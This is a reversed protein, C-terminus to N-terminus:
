RGGRFKINSWLNLGLLVGASMPRKINVSCIIPTGLNSGPNWNNIYSVQTMQQGPTTADGAYVIINNYRWVIYVHILTNYINNPWTDNQYWGNVNTLNETAPLLTYMSSNPKLSCQWNIINLVYDGQLQVSAWVNQSAWTPDKGTPLQLYTWLEIELPQDTAVLPALPQFSPDGLTTKSSCGYEGSLRYYSATKYMNSINSCSGLLSSDFMNFSDNYTGQIQSYALSSVWTANMTDRFNPTSNVIQYPPAPPSFATVVVTQQVHLTNDLIEYREYTCTDTDISLKFGVCILVFLISIFIIIILKDKIM